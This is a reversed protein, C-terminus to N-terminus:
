QSQQGEFPVGTEMLSVALGRSGGRVMGGERVKMRVLNTGPSVDVVLREKSRSNNRLWDQAPWLGKGVEQRAIEAEGGMGRVISRSRANFKRGISSKGM